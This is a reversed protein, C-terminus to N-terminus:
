FVTICWVFLWSFQLWIKCDIWDWAVSGKIRGSRSSSWPCWHFCYDRLLEHLKQWHRYSSYLLTPAGIVPSQLFCMKVMKKGNHSILGAALFPKIRECLLSTQWPALFLWAAMNSKGSGWSSPKCGNNIWKLNGSSPYIKYFCFSSQRHTGYDEYLKTFYYKNM